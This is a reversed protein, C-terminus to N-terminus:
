QKHSHGGGPSCQWPAAALTSVTMQILAGTGSVAKVRMLDNLSFHLGVGFMLLMVGIEAFQETMARDVAPLGPILSVAVGSIIYGVLAPTKLFREAIYGFILALGFATVLTTILVFQDTM